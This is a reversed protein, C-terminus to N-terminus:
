TSNFKTWVPSSAKIITGLIIIIICHECVNVSYKQWYKM